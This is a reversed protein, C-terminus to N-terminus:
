LQYLWHTFIWNPTESFHRHSMQMDGTLLSNKGSPENAYKREGILLNVYSMQMNFRPKDIRGGMEMNWM